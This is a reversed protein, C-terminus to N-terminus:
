IRAIGKNSLGGGRIRAVKGVKEPRCSRKCSKLLFDYHERKTAICSVICMTFFLHGFFEPLPLGGRM